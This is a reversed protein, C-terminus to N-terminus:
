NGLRFMRKLVPRGLLSHLVAAALHGGWYIWAIVAFTDHIDEIIELTSKGAGGMRSFYFTAGTIVMATIALLGLGHIFGALGGDKGPGGPPLRQYRIGQWLEKGVNLMGARTWPFLHRLGENPHTLSWLWHLIILVLITAGLIEHIEFGLTDPHGPHPSHMFSGIFLQATVGIALLLHILRLSRSWQGTQNERSAM